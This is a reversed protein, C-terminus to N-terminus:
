CTPTESTMPDTPTRHLVVIDDLLWGGDSRVFGLRSVERVAGAVGAPDTDDGVVVDSDIACLDVVARDTGSLAIRSITAHAPRTPDPVARRGTSALEAISAEFVTSAYGSRASHAAARATEDLPSRRAALATAWTHRAATRLAADDAPGVVGGDVATDAVWRDVVLPAVAAPAVTPSPDIDAVTPATTTPVPAPTPAPLNMAVSRPPTREPVPDPAPDSATPAIAVPPVTPSPTEIGVPRDVLDVRVEAPATDISWRDDPGILGVTVLAVVVATGAISMLRTRVLNGASAGTVTIM